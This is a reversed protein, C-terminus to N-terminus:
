VSVLTDLVAVAVDSYQMASLFPDPSSSSESSSINPFLFMRGSSEEFFWEGPVDLEELLNEIFYANGDITHPRNQYGGYGLSISVRGGDGGQEEETITYNTMRYQVSGWLDSHMMHVIGTGPNQMQLNVYPMPLSVPLSATAM